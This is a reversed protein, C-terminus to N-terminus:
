HRKLGSVIARFANRGHFGTVNIRRLRFPDSGRGNFGEVATVGGRCGADRVLGAIMENQHDSEGYPYSYIAPAIGTMESIRAMSDRVERGIVEPTEHGMSIHSVTHAGIDHGQAILERVGAWDLMPYVPNGADSVGLSKLKADREEAPMRKLAAEWANMARQRDGGSAIKQVWGDPFPIQAVSPGALRARLAFWWPRHTGDVFGTTVFFTAPMGYKKLLPAAHSLNNRYGDDFTIAVARPPPPEGRQFVDVLERLPVVRYHGKLTRLHQEFVDPRVHFGDFNMLPDARDDVGHYALIRASGATLWRCFTFIGSGACLSLAISKATNM